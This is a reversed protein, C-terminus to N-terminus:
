GRVLSKSSWGMLYRVTPSYHEAIEEPVGKTFDSWTSVWSRCYYALIAKRPNNTFNPGSRHWTHSLWFAMSGAPGTLRIEGEIDDYGWPPKKLTLHSGPVVRTAGNESTFDDLMWVNQVAVTIEPLPESMQTLPTDVHWAGGDTEPGISNAAIDSLLCDEGLVSRAQNLVVHNEILRDCHKLKAPLNSSRQSKDNDFLIPIHSFSKNIKTPPVPWSTDLNQAREYRIRKMVREHEADSINYANGIFTKIVDDDAHSPGDGPDFPDEREDIFIKDIDSSFQALEDKGLLNEVVLYGNKLLYQTADDLDLNQGDYRKM